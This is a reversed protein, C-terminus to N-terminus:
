EKVEIQEPIVLLPEYGCNPCHSEVGDANFISGCNECEVCNIFNTAM